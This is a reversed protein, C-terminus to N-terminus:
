AYCFPLHMLVAHIAQFLAFIAIYYSLPYLGHFIFVSCFSVPSFISPRSCFFCGASGPHPPHVAIYTSRLDILFYPLRDSRHREMIMIKILQDINYLPFKRGQDLVPRHPHPLSIEQQDIFIDHVFIMGRLLFHIRGAPDNQPDTILHQPLQRRSLRKKCFAEPSRPRFQIM